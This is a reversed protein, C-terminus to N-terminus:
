TLYLTEHAVDDLNHSLPGYQIKKYNIYFTNM